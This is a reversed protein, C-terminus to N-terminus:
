DILFFAVCDKVGFDVVFFNNGNGASILGTFQIAHKMEQAQQLHFRVECVDVDLAIWFYFCADEIV